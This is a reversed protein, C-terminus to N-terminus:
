SPTMPATTFVGTGDQGINWSNALVDVSGRASSIDTTTASVGDVLLTAMGDRKFRPWAIDGNESLGLRCRRLLPSTALLTM